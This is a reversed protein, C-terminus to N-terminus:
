CCSTCSLDRSVSGRDQSGAQGWAPARPFQQRLQDALEWTALSPPMQSWEVLIEEIPHDGSSWRRQLIRVPVQLEALDNPLTSSVAQDGQSKKLQSFHFVPHVASGKPLQLCYAVKGIRQLIRYPGFFRFALKHHARNAVSSQVYPQLKLFVMDGVSFQREVRRKDAQKKM